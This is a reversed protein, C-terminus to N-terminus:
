SAREAKPKTSAKYYADTVYNWRAEGKLRPPPFVGAAIAAELLELRDLMEGRRPEHPEVVVGRRWTRFTAFPVCLWLSMDVSTLGAAKMLRSIYRAFSEQRKPAM